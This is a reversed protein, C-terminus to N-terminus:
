VRGSTKYENLWANADPGLASILGNIPDSSPPKGPKNWKRAVVVERKDALKSWYIWWGKATRIFKETEHKHRSISIHAMTQHVHILEDRKFLALQFEPDDEGSTVESALRYLTQYSIIEPLSYQVINRNPDHVLYYFTKIKLLSNYALNQTNSGNGGSQNPADRSPSPLPVPSAFSLASPSFPGSTSSVFNRAQNRDSPRPSPSENMHRPGGLFSSRSDRKRSKTTLHKINPVLDSYIPETLSALRKYLSFYYDKDSLVPSQVTFILTFIFPRRRFIVINYPEFTDSSSKLSLLVRKYSFRAGHLEDLEDLQTDETTHGDEEIEDPNTDLQNSEESSPHRENSSDPLEEEEDEELNGEFGVLFRSDNLDDTPGDPVPDNPTPKKVDVLGFTSYYVLSSLGDVSGKAVASATSVAASNFNTFLSSPHTLRSLELLTPTSSSSQVQEGISATDPTNSANSTKKSLKKVKAHSMVATSDRQARRDLHYIYGSPELYALDDMYQDCDIIWYVLDAISDTSLNNGPDTSGGWVCGCSEVTAGAQITTYDFPASPPHNSILLQTLGKDKDKELISAKIAEITEQSLNGRATRIDHYLSCFGAGNVNVIWHSAWARWWPDIHDVLAERGKTELYSQFTGNHLRWRRYTKIIDSVLM